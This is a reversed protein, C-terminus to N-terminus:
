ALSHMTCPTGNAVGFYVNGHANNLVQGTGGQVFYAFLEPREDENYLIAQSSLPFDEHLQRKWRLVPVNKRKGFAKAAAANIIARDVNSTVICTSHTIWNPDQEIDQSTLEHTVGDVIDQTIPKYHANDKASWKQGTPYVLPLACFAAVRQMHIVCDAARMNAMLEHVHFQQFLNRATANNGNVTGYM